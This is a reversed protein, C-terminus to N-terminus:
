VRPPGDEFEATLREHLEPDFSLDVIESEEFEVRLYDGPAIGDPINALHRKFTRIAGTEDFLTFVCRDGQVSDFSAYLDPDEDM